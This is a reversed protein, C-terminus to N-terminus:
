RAIIGPPVHPIVEKADRGLRADLARYVDGMGGAGLSSLIEYTGLLTGKSLAM